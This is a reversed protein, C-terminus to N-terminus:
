HRNSRRSKQISLSDIRPGEVWDDILLIIEGDQGDRGARGGRQWFIAPEEGKPLGYLVVDPLNVGLGLAETAFIVRISSAEDLRQFEAIISEKDFKSIDRHFIKITEISQKKSYKHKDSDQLWNRCEQMAAYAEM